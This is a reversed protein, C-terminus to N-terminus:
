SVMRLKSMTAPRMALLVQREALWNGTDAVLYRVAWHRDDFYFEKVSGVEGDLSDLKYGLLSKANILM